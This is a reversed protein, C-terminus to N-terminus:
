GNFFINRKTQLFSSKRFVFDSGANLLSKLAHMQLMRGLPFYVFQRSSLLLPYCERTITKILTSKGCGNPGLIAVHEGLGLCIEDPFLFVLPRPNGKSNSPRIIRTPSYM